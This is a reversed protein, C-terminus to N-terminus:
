KYEKYGNLKWLFVLLLISVAAMGMVAYYILQAGISIKPITYRFVQQPIISGGLFLSNMFGTLIGMYKKPLEYSSMIVIVMQLGNSFGVLFLFIFALLPSAIKLMLGAFSLLLVNLGVSYKLKGIRQSIFPTTFFGSLFGVLLYSFTNKTAMGVSHELYDALFQTEAISYYIMFFILTYAIIILMKSSQGMASLCEKFSIKEKTMQNQTLNNKKRLSFFYIFVTAAVAAKILYFYRWSNDITMMAPAAWQIFAIGICLALSVVMGIVGGARDPGMDTSVTKVASIFAGGCGFITIIRGLGFMAASTSLASITLGVTMTGSLLTLMRNIGIIDIIIGYPIQLLAYIFGTMSTINAISFTNTIDNIGNLMINKACPLFTQRTFTYLFAFMTAFYVRKQIKNDDM